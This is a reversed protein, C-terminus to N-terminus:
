QIVFGARSASKMDGFWAASVSVVAVIFAMAMIVSSIILTRRTKNM